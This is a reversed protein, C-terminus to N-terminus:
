TDLCHKLFHGLAPPPAPRGAAERQGLDRAIEHM